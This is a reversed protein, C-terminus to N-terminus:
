RLIRRQRARPAPAAPPRAGRLRACKANYVKLPLPKGESGVIMNIFSSDQVDQVWRRRTLGEGRPDTGRGGCAAAAGHRACSAHRAAPPPARRGRVLRQGGAEVVFDFWSVLGADAGPSNPQVDIIRYGFPDGDFGEVSQTGGMALTAAIPFRGSSRGQAGSDLRCPAGHRRLVPRPLRLRGRGEADVRHPLGPDLDLALGACVGEAEEGAEEDDGDCCRHLGHQFLRWYNEQLLRLGLLALHPPPRALSRSM